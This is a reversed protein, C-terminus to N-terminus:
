DPELCSFQDTYNKHGEPSNYFSLQSVEAAKNPPSDQSEKQSGNLANKFPFHSNREKLPVREASPTPSKGSEPDAPEIAQEVPLVAFKLSSRKPIASKKKITSFAFPSVAEFLDQTSMVPRHTVSEPPHRNELDTNFKHFPTIAPSHERTERQETGNQQYVTIRPTESVVSPTSGNQFELQAQLFAAQTSLLSARSSRLSENPVVGNDVVDYVDPRPQHTQVSERVAITNQQSVQRPSDEARIDELAAYGDKVIAPSLTSLSPHPKPSGRDRGKARTDGIRRYMFSTSSAIHPSDINPRPAVEYQGKRKKKKKTSTTAVLTCREASRLIEERSPPKAKSENTSMLQVVPGHMSSSGKRDLTQAGVSLTVRGMVEDEPRVRTFSQTVDDHQTCQSSVDSTVSDDRLRGGTEIVNEKANASHSQLPLNATPGGEKEAMMKAPSSITMSASGTSRRTGDLAVVGPAGPAFAPAKSPALHLQGLDQNDGLSVGRRSPSPSAGPSAGLPVNLGYELSKGNYNSQRRRLWQPDTRSSRQSNQEDTNASFYETADSQEDRPATLKTSTTQAQGAGRNDQDRHNSTGNGTRIAGEEKGVRKGKNEVARLRSHASVKRSIKKRKTDAGDRAIQKLSSTVEVKKGKLTAKARRRDQRIPRSWPNQWNKDFPGKLRTSLLTPVTGRLYQTAITEVRRRKAARQEPDWDADRLPELLDETSPTLEEFDLGDRLHCHLNKLM